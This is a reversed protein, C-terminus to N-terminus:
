AERAKMRNILMGAFLITIMFIVQIWLGQVIEGSLGSFGKIDQIADNVVVYWYTPVFKSLKLVDDGLISQPVFIGGLFACGLGVVNSFAQVAAEKHLIQAALYALAMSLCIMIFANLMSYVGKASMTYEPYLICAVVMLLGFTVAMLVFSGLLLFLNRKTFSMSSCKNRASIDRRNFVMLVPGLVSIMCCMFIYPLYQFYFAAYNTVAKDDGDLFEVTSEIDSAEGANGISEELDFGADLYMEVISLYSEIQNDAFQGTTSSPVKRDTLLNERDGALFRETFDEPIYLIYDLERVYMQDLLEDETEPLDTVTNKRALQEVLADGLTGKDLNEIAIALKTQEFNAAIRDAGFQSMVIAIGLFIVLYMIIVNIRKKVIKMFAKYVQM